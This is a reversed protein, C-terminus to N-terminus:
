VGQPHWCAVRHDCGLSEVEPRRQRCTDTAQACRTAFPCGPPLDEFAPVTGPIERLRRPGGSSASGLRPLSELLGRSYPHAPRRFFEEVPAEEVARGAYMVVVRDANEAVLGMNHTILVIATGFRRQMEALLQTIQAQITVDLATTPEDALIVSPNCAIAMAIVVRQRMGGSLQHPYDGLRRRADPLHVSELLEATRVLAADRSLKQHLMMVEAVQFGITRLPNLSNMPEQFIMSIQSGRLNRLEAEGLDLVDRGCLRVRGGTIQAAPPLLRLISLASVSKGCGSEGVLCVTEGKRVSFSLGNLVKVGGSFTVQLDSVDLVTATM